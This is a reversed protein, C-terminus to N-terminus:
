AHQNYMLRRPLPAFEGVCTLLIYVATLGSGANVLAVSLALLTWGVIDNGVGASLVIIGVNTDLL